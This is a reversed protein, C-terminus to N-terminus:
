RESDLGLQRAAHIAEMGMTTTVELFRVEPPEASLEMIQLLRLYSASRLRRQFDASTAWEEVFTFSGKTEIDESLRRRLCGEEGSAPTLLSRLAELVGKRQSRHAVITVTAQIM